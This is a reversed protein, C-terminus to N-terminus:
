RGNELKELISAVVAGRSVYLRQLADVEDQAWGMIMAVQPAPIGAVLLNTAATRRLDHFTKSVKADDCAKGFSSRLGDATWPRKGRTTTLIVLHRKEIGAMLARCADSAPVIVRRDTKATRITFSGGDYSGWPLKILDGQRLGTHVALGVAWRLEKSAVAVFRAMEDPTWISDSRNSRHLRKIPEAQNTEIYVREVAWGLLRKLTGTAMDATRPTGAMKDRWQLFHRRVKPDDLAKLPLDGFKAQIQDLHRRYARQTHDGLTTFDASAKFAAIVELFTGTKPQKRGSHAAQYSAIYEPSGPAGLLRPAGKGKWAYHYEVVRGSALRVTVAHVHKLMVTVM